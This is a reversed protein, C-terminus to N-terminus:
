RFTEGSWSAAIMRCEAFSCRGVDTHVERCPAANENYLSGHAALPALGPPTPDGPRALGPRYIGAAGLRVRLHVIRGASTASAIRRASGPCAAARKSFSGAVDNVGRRDDRRGVAADACGGLGARRATGRAPAHALLLGHGRDPRARGRMRDNDAHDLPGGRREGRAGSCSTPRCRQPYAM